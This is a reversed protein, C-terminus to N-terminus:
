SMYYAGYNPDLFGMQALEDYTYPDAGTIQSQQASALQSELEQIKKRNLYESAGYGLAAGAAGGIGLNAADFEFAVKNMQEQYMAQKIHPNAETYLQYAAMFGKDYAEKKM